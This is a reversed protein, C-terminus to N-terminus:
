YRPIDLTNYVGLGNESELIECLLVKLVNQSCAFEMVVYYRFLLNFFALEYILFSAGGNIILIM